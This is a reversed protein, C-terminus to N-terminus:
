SPKQVPVRYGRAAPGSHPGPPPVYTNNLICFGGMGRVTGMCQDYSVFGCSIIGGMGGGYQACWPYNQAEARGGFLVTAIVIAAITSTTPLHRM